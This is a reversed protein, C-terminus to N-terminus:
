EWINSCYFLAEWMSTLPSSPIFCLRGESDSWGMQTQFTVFSSSVCVSDSGPVKPLLSALLPDM